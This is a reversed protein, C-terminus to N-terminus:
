PARRNGETHPMSLNMRSAAGHLLVDLGHRFRDRESRAGILRPFVARPDEGLFLSSATRPTSTRM